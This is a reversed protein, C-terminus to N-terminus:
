RVGRRSRCHEALLQRMESGNDASGM